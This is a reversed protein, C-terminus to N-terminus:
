KVGYRKTKEMDKENLYQIILVRLIDSVTRGENNSVTRLQEYLRKKIWMNFRVSDNDRAM